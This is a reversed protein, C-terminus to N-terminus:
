SPCYHVPLIFTGNKQTVNIIESAYLNSLSVFTVNYKSAELYGIWKGSANVIAYKNLVSNSPTAVINLTGSTPTIQNTCNLQVAILTRFIPHLIIPNSNYYSINNNNNIYKTYNSTVNSTCEAGNCSALLSVAGGNSSYKFSVKGSSGTRLTSSNSNISVLAGDLAATTGNPLIQKVTVNFNSYTTPIFIVKASMPVSFTNTYYYYPSFITLNFTGDPLPIIANNNIATYNINIGNILIKAYSLINKVEIYNNIYHNIYFTTYLIKGNSSYLLIEYNTNYTYNPLTIVNMGSNFQKVFPSGSTILDQTSSNYSNIAVMLSIPYGNDYIEASYNTGIIIPNFLSFSSIIDQSVAASNLQNGGSIITPLFFFLILGIVIIAGALLIMEEISDM